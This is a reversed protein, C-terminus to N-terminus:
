VFINQAVFIFSGGVGKKAEHITDSRGHSDKLAVYLEYAGGDINSCIIIANETPIYSM